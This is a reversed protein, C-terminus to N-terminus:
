ASLLPRVQEDTVGLSVDGNERPSCPTNAGVVEVPCLNAVRTGTKLIVPQSLTNVVRAPIGPFVTSPVVTRSAYLGPKNTTPDTGRQM